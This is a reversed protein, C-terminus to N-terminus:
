LYIVNLGIAEALAWEARAGLSGLWGPLMAITDAQWIIWEFDHALAARIGGRKYVKEHEAPNFVEWGQARLKAAAEHFAPANLDPHGRMPGSLYLKM